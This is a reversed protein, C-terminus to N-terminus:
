LSWPKLVLSKRDFLINGSMDCAVDRDQDFLFRVLVVGKGVM